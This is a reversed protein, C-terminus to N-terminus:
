VTKPGRPVAVTREFAVVIAAIRKITVESVRAIMDFWPPDPVPLTRSRRLVEAGAWLVM